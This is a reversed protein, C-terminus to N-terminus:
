FTHRTDVKVKSWVINTVCVDINKNKDQYEFNANNKKRCATDDVATSLSTNLSLYVFKDSVTEEKNSSLDCSFM